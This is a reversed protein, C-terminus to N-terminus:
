LMADNCKISKTPIYEVTSMSDMLLKIMVTLCFLINIITAAFHGSGVITYKIRAKSCTFIIYYLKTVLKMVM